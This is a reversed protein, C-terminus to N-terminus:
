RDDTQGTAASDSGTQKEEAATQMQVPKPANGAPQGQAPYPSGAYPNVQNGYPYVPAAGYPTSKARQQRRKEQRKESVKWIKRVVLFVIGILLVWVVIYPLNIVFHIGFNAFGDGVGKLSEMFGDRIKEGASLDAPPTYKEVEDITLYVTSYDIKNDFTRLQSEMSEIQYRVESLRSEITIIDEVTEAKELLELLREQETLLAKKHSELDVYQLTVDETGESRSVVNAEEGVKQLFEDLRNQPIRATISAQRNRSVNESDYSYYGDRDYSSISEVYGGMAKVQQEINALLSDYQETEVDLNATRILKRNSNDVAEETENGADAYEQPAEENFYVSDDYSYDEYVDTAAASETMMRTDAGASDSSGCATLLLATVALVGLIRGRKKM